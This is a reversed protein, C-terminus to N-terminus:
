SPANNKEREAAWFADDRVTETSSYKHWRRTFAMWVPQNEKLAFEGRRLDDLFRHVIAVVAQTSMPTKAQPSFFVKNLYVAFAVADSVKYNRYEPHSVVVAPWRLNMEHIVEASPKRKPTRHAKDPDAGFDVEVAERSTDCKTHGRRLRTTKPETLNTEIPNTGSPEPVGQWITRAGGRGSPEPMGSPEPLYCWTYVTTTGPRKNTVRIVEASQLHQLVLRVTERTVGCKRALGTQSGYFEYGHADNVTDAIALAVLRVTSPSVPIDSSEVPFQPGWCDTMASVSM